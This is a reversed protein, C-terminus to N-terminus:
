RKELALGLAELYWRDQGDWSAALKRLAGTLGEPRKWLPFPETRALGRSHAAKLNAGGIDLGLVDM